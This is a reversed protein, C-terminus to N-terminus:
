TLPGTRGDVATFSLALAGSFWESHREYSGERLHAYCCGGVAAAGSEAFIYIYINFLLSSGLMDRQPREAESENLRNKQEFRESSMTEGQM